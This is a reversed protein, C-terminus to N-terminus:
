LLVARSATVSLLLYANQVEKNRYICKRINQKITFHIQPNVLETIPSEM